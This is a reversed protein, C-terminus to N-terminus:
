GRLFHFLLCPIGATFVASFDRLIGSILAFALDSPRVGPFIFFAPSMWAIWVASPLVGHKPLDPPWQEWVSHQKMFSQRLILRYFGGTQM